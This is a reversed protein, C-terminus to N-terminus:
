YNLLRIKKSRPDFSTFTKLNLDQPRLSITKYTGDYHKVWLLLTKLNQQSTNHRQNIHQGLLRLLTPNRSESGKEPLLAELNKLETNQNLDFSEEHEYNNLLYTVRASHAPNNDTKELQIYLTNHKVQIATSILPTEEDRGSHDIESNKKTTNSNGIDLPKDSHIVTTYDTFAYYITELSANEM